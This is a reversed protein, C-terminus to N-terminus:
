DYAGGSVVHGEHVENAYKELNTIIKHIQLAGLYHAQWRWQGVGRM